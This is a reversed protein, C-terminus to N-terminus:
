IGEEVTVNTLLGKSLSSHVNMEVRVGGGGRASRGRAGGRLGTTGVHGVM